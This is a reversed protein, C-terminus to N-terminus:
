FLAIIMEYTVLKSADIKEADVDIRCIRLCQKRVFSLQMIKIESGSNVLAKVPFNGFRILYHICPVRQFESRKRVKPSAKM